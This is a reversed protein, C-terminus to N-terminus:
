GSATKDAVSFPVASALLQRPHQVERVWPAILHAGPISCRARQRVPQHAQPVHNIRTYIREVIHQDKKCRSLRTGFCLKEDSHSWRKRSNSLYGNADSLIFHCM